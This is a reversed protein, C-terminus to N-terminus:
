FLMQCDLGSKWFLSLSFFGFFPDARSFGFFVCFFSSKRPSCFWQKSFAFHRKKRTKEGKKPGFIEFINLFSRKQRLRFRACFLHFDTFVALFGTDGGTPLRCRGFLPDWKPGWKQVGIKVNGLFGPFLEVKGWWFPVVEFLGFFPPWFIPWFHTSKPIDCKKSWKKSGKKQGKRPSWYKIPLLLAKERIRWFGWFLHEFTPGFISGLFHVKLFFRFKSLNSKQPDM